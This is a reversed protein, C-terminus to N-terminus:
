VKASRFASRVIRPDPLPYRQLINKYFVDWTMWARQSRRQLWKWWILVVRHQFIRLARINGTILAEKPHQRAIKAIRAQKTSIGGPRLLALVYVLSHAGWFIYIFEGGGDLALSCAWATSPGENDM